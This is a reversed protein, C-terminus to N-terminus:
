MSDKALTRDRDSDARKSCGRTSRYTTTRSRSAGRVQRVSEDYLPRRRFAVGLAAPAQDSWIKVVFLCMDVNIYVSQVGLFRRSSFLNVPKSGRGGTKVQREVENPVRVVHGDQRGREPSGDVLAPRTTRRTCGVNLDSLRACLLCSSRRRWACICLTASVAETANAMKTKAVVHKVSIRSPPSSQTYHAVQLM